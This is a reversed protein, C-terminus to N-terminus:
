PLVVGLSDALNPHVIKGDQVNVATALVPNKAVADTIGCDALLVVYPLTANTLALTSTRPYAGPMNAVAYHVIDDVVYTPDDHTTPRTTEACGGQDVAVDVIVAGRKMEALMPRSILQPTRGGPLLIAGIVVDADRLEACINERVLVGTRVRGCFLEDIRQLREMGRNLVITEMGIGQSIRAANYGVTGAGLILAKAPKVGIAGTPLLGTGGRCNQLCWAAMLPAMRGAVESMPLLLPLTGNIELTEYALATIKRDMLFSTLKRNAALHLYTFLTQGERFLDFEEPLPEKVKVVLEARRFLDQRFVVTAGSQQYSDDSFGSGSGASCEVLVEHGARTLEAVGAPTVAVRYEERKIEKPVAIIM